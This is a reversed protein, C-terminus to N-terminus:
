SCLLHKAKIGKCIQWVRQKTVGFINSVESLSLGFHRFWLIEQADKPTLRTCRHKAGKCQRGKNDRDHMNDADTGLFLHSPNICPKVDCRHLVKLGDPIEGFALIWAVRHAHQNRERFRVTGYGSLFCGGTWIWCDSFPIREVRAWFRETTFKRNAM